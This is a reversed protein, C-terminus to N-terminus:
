AATYGGDAVFDAGTVFGAADSALFAILPAIDQPVGLRGMPILKAWAALAVEPPIPDGAADRPPDWDAGLNTVVPGPLVCNARIGSGALEVAVARTMALVAGKTASYAAYAAGGVQGYISAINVISGGAAMLPLSLHMGLYVSEVNIRLQRRLVDIGAEAFPRSIMVGANNVLIDLRGHRASVAALVDRWDGEEGVDHRLALTDDGMEAAVAAVGDGNVDTLVPRVGAAHLYRAIERGIGSAAGTVLAVKGRLGPITDTM